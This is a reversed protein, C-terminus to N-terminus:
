SSHLTKVHEFAPEFAPAHYYEFNDTHNRPEWAEASNGKHYQELTGVSVFELGAAVIRLKFYDNSLFTIAYGRRKLELGCGVMPDIDGGTGMAYIIINLM